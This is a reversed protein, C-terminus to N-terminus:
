ENSPKTLKISWNIKRGWKTHLSAIYVKDDGCPAYLELYPSKFSLPHKKRYCREVTDGLEQTINLNYCVITKHGSLLLNMLTEYTVDSCNFDLPKGAGVLGKKTFIYEFDRM